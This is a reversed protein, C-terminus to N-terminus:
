GENNPRPDRPRYLDAANTGPCDLFAQASLDALIRDVAENLKTFAFTSDNHPGYVGAVVSSLQLLRARSRQLERALDRHEDYTLPNM